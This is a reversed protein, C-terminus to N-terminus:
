SPAVSYYKRECDLLVWHIRPHEGTNREDGHQATQGAGRDESLKL